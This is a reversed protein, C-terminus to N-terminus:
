YSTLKQQTLDRLTQLEGCPLVTWIIGQRLPPQADLALCQQQRRVKSGLSLLCVKVGNTGELIHSERNLNRMGSHFNNQIQLVVFNVKLSMIMTRQKKGIISNKNKFYIEACNIVM